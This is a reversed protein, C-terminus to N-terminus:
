FVLRDDNLIVEGSKTKGFYIAKSSLLSHSKKCLVCVSLLSEDIQKSDIEILYIQGDITRSLCDPNGSLKLLDDFHKQSYEGFIEDCATKTLDLKDMDDGNGTIHILSIEKYGDAGRM